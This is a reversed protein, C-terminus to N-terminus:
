TWARCPAPDQGEGASGGLSERNGEVGDIKRQKDKLPKGYESVQYGREDSFLIPSM